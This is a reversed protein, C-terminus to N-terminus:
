RSRTPLVGGIGVGALFRFTGLSHADTAALMLLSSFGLLFGGWVIARKRGFRDGVFAFVIAGCMLGAIGLSFVPGLSARPIGWARVIAPAAYAISGYDYGDLFVIPWLLALLGMVFANVRRREILGPVDIEPGGDM